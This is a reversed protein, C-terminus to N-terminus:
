HAHRNASRNADMALPLVERLYRAAQDHDLVKATQFLHQLMARQCEAQVQTHERLALELEPTLETAHQILTDVRVRAVDIRACMEECQPRYSAHLECIKTWQAANPKLEDKVWALEPLADVKLGSAASVRGSRMGFFAAVGAVLAIALVSIGQKM